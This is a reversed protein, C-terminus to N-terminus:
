YSFRNKFSEFVALDIESIAGCAEKNTGMAIGELDKGGYTVKSVWECHCTDPSREVAISLM